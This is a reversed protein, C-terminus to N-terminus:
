GLVKSFDATLWRDIEVEVRISNARRDAENMRLYEELVDPGLYRAAIGRIDQEPDPAGVTARGEVTVYKYPPTETQVCLSVRGQERVLRGKRSDRGTIFVLPGGPEYRYWVPASLPGRTPDAVSLVAVHAGALFKERSEKDMRLDVNVARREAITPPKV